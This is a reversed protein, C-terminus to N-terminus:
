TEHARQIWLERGDALRLCVGEAAVIPLPPVRAPMPAYPHWVRQRDESLLREVDVSPSRLRRRSGPV